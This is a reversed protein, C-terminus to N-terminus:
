SQLWQELREELSDAVLQLSELLPTNPLWHDGSLLYVPHPPNLFDCLEYSVCGRDLITVIGRPWNVQPEELRREDSTCALYFGVLDDENPKAGQTPIPYFGYNPGWSGNGVEAYMRRVVAPLSFGLWGEADDIDQLTAIAAIKQGPRVWAAADLFRQPDSVRKKLRAMLEDIKSM